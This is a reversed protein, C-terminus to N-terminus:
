DEDVEDPQHDEVWQDIFMKALESWNVDSLFGSVIGTVFGGAEYEHCIVEEVFERIVEGAEYYEDQTYHEISLDSSDLGDLLELNVKWTEWNTWGNYETSM